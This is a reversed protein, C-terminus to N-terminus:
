AVATRYIGSNNREHKEHGGREDMVGREAMMANGRSSNTSYQKYRSSSEM